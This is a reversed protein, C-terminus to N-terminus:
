MAIIYTHVCLISINCSIGTVSLIANKSSASGHENSAVCQYHGNYEPKIGYLTLENTKDGKASTPINGNDRRWFYSTSGNAMCAFAVNTTDNNISVTKDLPHVYMQPPAVHTRIITTYINIIVYNRLTHMYTRVDISVITKTCM